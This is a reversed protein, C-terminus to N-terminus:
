AHTRARAGLPSMACLPGTPQHHNHPLPRATWVSTRMAIIFDTGSNNDMGPRRVTPSVARPRGSSTVTCEDDPQLKSSLSFGPAVAASSNSLHTHTIHSLRGHRAHLCCTCPWKLPDRAFVCVLTTPWTSPHRLQAPLCRGPM